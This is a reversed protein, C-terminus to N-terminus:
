EGKLPPYPPHTSSMPHSSRMGSSAPTTATGRVPRGPTRRPSVTPAVSPLASSSAAPSAGSEPRSVSTSSSPMEAIGKPPEAPISPELFQTSREASADQRPPPAADPEQQRLGVFAAIPVAFAVLGSVLILGWRGPPTGHANPHATADTAPRASEIPAIQPFSPQQIRVGFVEALAQVAGTACDFRAAPALAAAKLFWTDFAAPLTVSTRRLARATPPEQLGVLIRSFLDFMSGNAQKEENWYPEGTLMTYAIQGLAYIDTWPGIERRGRIQEPAMYIPTGVAQTTRDRNDPTLVKAVGFDLIKVCPSGDDRQTLFLNDPKLDRHVINAAHTKDLARAAQFLYVVVEDPPLRTRKKLMGKIDEGRLLDMVLFPVQTAEDIGADSVRVIHDSEIDGTIQAELAFRARLDEDEIANPLMVKLARRSRTKDDFVEYIAGMGGMSIRRVVRYRGQFLTDPQLSTASSPHM